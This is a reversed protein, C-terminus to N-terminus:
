VIGELNLGQKNNGEYIWTGWSVKGMRKAYAKNFLEVNVVVVVGGDYETAQKYNVYLKSSTTDNNGWVLIIGRKIREM